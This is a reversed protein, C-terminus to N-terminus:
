AKAGRKDNILQQLHLKYTCRHLIDCILAVLNSCQWGSLLDGGRVNEARVQPNFFPRRYPARIAEYHTKIISLSLTPRWVVSLCTM